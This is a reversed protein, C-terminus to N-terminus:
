RTGKKATKLILFLMNLVMINKMNSGIGSFLDLYNIREM